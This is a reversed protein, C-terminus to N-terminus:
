NLRNGCHNCFKSDAEIKKGCVPCITSLPKGCNKCFTSNADNVTGCSCIISQTGAHVAKTISSVAPAIEEGAENIVPISENKTYTLIEKRFGFVLLSTGVGIMPLGIFAFFFFRPMEGTGFSSFFSVFGIIAFIAGLVFIVLGLIKFLKKAKQHKNNDM